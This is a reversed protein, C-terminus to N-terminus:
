GRFRNVLWRIGPIAAVAAIALVTGDMSSVPAPEAGMRSFSGVATAGRSALAPTMAGMMSPGGAVYQRGGCPVNPVVKTSETMVGLATCTGRVAGGLCHIGPGCAEIPMAHKALEIEPPKVTFNKCTGCKKLAASQRLLKRSDHNSGESVVAM